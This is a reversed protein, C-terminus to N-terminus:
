GVATLVPAKGLIKSVTRANIGVATAITAISDGRDRRALVEAVEDETKTIGGAAIAKRAATRHKATIAPADRHLAAPAEHVADRHLAAPAPAPADSVPATYEPVADTYRVVPASAADSVAHLQPSASPEPTGSAPATYTAPTTATYEQPADRHLATTPEPYVPEPDRHLAPAPAAYVPARYMEELERYMPDPKAPAPERPARPATRPAAVPAAVAEAAPKLAFLVLTATGIALDVAVPVIVAIWTPAGESVLVDRLAIFSAAFVLVVLTVVATVSARYVAAVTRGDARARALGGILHIGLLLLVPVVAAAVVSARGSGPQTVAHYVNGALSTLTALILTLWATARTHRVNREAPDHRTTMM